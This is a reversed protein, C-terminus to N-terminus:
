FTRQYVPPLSILYQTEGGQDSAIPVQVLYAYRTDPPHRTPQVGEQEHEHQTDFAEVGSTTSVTLPQGWASLIYELWPRMAPVSAYVGPVGARNCGQGWSVLGVLFDDGDSTTRIIPGGSDGQCADAGNSGACFMSDTVSAAGYVAQCDDRAVHGVEGVQQVEASLGSESTLGWGVITYPTGPAVEQFSSDALIPYTNNDDSVAVQTKLRLLMIDNDQESRQGYGFHQAVEEVEHV